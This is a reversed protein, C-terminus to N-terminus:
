IVTEKQALAKVVQYKEWANKVAQNEERLKRDNEYEVRFQNIWILNDKHVSNMSIRLEQGGHIDSTYVYIVDDGFVQNYTMNRRWRKSFLVVKEYVYDLILVVNLWYDSILLYMGAAMGIAFALIIYGIM